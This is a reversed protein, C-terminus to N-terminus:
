HWWWDASVETAEAGDRSVQLGLVRDGSGQFYRLEFRHLGAALGISGYTMGPSQPGDRDILLADDILLRAGDDSVLAFRYVGDTPVRLYGRFRLGFSEPRAEPPINLAQAMDSRLPARELLAETNNFPGEFYDRQLGERLASDVEPLAPQLQARAYRARMQPGLRGDVTLLRASITVPTTGLPVQLPTQYVPSRADPEQGDISYVIRAGPLPSQLAVTTQADLSLVDGDIGLVEPIRYHVGLAGLAALQPPLRQLFHNWDRASAPSWLVESMALARPWLMYEAAEPTRIHETWLNAQAGLVRTAEEASLQPPVPEFAYVQRMPLSGPCVPEDPSRSQCYDFYAYSTPTMVVGHGRQAAKIGEELSRWAMITTSPAPDGALMEDWALMRRGHRQLHREIRRMFWGQLAHEDALGERRIIDQALASEQWRVIPAEDGGAHIYESPFIAMVEDLVNELFTFTAESPCLVNDDVGWDVRVDFPGPTCALEPYAALAAVTHGPMEIEPVVTIHRQRAYEVIERAQEQTYFGGYRKADYQVSGDRQFLATQKRWAGIETLRPYRKIELRWGQDETLHWHLVNFKYRAMLDLQRKIHAMPFVHRGVDLHIGRWAFRPTDAIEVFQLGHSADAQALLQRLTQLGYFLGRPDAAQLRIGQPDIALSYSEPNAAGDAVLALTLDAPTSLGAKANRLSVPRGWAGQLLEQALTGLDRLDGPQGQLSLQPRASPVFTGPHVDMRAPQPVIAPAVGEGAWVCATCLWLVCCLWMRPICSRTPKM